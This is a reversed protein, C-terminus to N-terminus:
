APFHEAVLKRFADARHSIGHKINPDMEGFTESYGDPLFVADYGFGRKGRQPWVLEGEVVGKYLDCNGEPWALALVCVFRASRDAKGKLSDEVRRMAANFDRNPGAWRASRVGPAGDLAPVVLGSDDSLSPQGSALCAAKAKLAANAAFTEGTEEPEPLNLEAASIVDVGYPGLLDRIEVVKGENHSAIVLQKGTLRHSM